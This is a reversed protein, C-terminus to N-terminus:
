DLEMFKKWWSASVSSVAALMNKVDAPTSSHTNHQPCGDHIKLVLENNEGQQQYVLPYVRCEQPRKDYITCKGTSFFVCRGAPTRSLRQVGNPETTKFVDSFQAEEFPMLIPAKVPSGGCCKTTCVECNIATTM